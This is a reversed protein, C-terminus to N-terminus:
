EDLTAAVYIERTDGDLCWCWWGENVPILVPAKYVIGLSTADINESFSLCARAFEHNCAGCGGIRAIVGAGWAIRTLEDVQIISTVPDDWPRPKWILGTDHHVHDLALVASGHLM